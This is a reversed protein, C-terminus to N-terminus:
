LWVKALNSSYWKLPKILEKFWHDSLTADYWPLLWTPDHECVFYDGSEIEDGVKISVLSIHFIFVLLMAIVCAIEMKYSCLIRQCMICVVELARLARSALEHKWSGGAVFTQFMIKFAATISLTIDDVNLDKKQKNRYSQSYISCIFVNPNHTIPLSGLPLATYRDM